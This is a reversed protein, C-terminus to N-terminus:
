VFCPRSELRGEGVFRTKKVYYLIAMVSATNGRESLQAHGYTFRSSFFARMFNKRSTKKHTVCSPSLSLPVVRLKFRWSFLVAMLVSLNVM